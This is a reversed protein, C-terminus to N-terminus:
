KQGCKYIYTPTPTPTLLYSYTPLLLYTHLLLLLYTPTPTPTPTLLYSYSYSYTPLLLLLLIYPLNRRLVYIQTHGSSIPPPKKKESLPIRHCSFPTPSEHNAWFHSAARAIHSPPWSPDSSAPRLNGSLLHEMRVVVILTSSKSSNWSTWIRGLHPHDAENEQLLDLSTHGNEPNPGVGLLLLCYRSPNKGESSRITSTTNDILLSPPRKKISSLPTKILGSSM